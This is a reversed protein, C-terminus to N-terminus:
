VAGLISFLFMDEEDGKPVVTSVDGSDFVACAAKSNFDESTCDVDIGHFLLDMAKGTWFPTTPKHFIENIANSILPLMPARDVNVTLAMGKFDILCYEYAVEM